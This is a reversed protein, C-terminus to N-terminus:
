QASAAIARGNTKTVPVNVRESQKKHKAALVDIAFFISSLERLESYRERMRVFERLVDAVFVARLSAADKVEDHIRYGGGSKARDISLSVYQPTLPERIIVLKILERAQQLRHEAAAKSDNWEFRRHLESQPHSKAWRVVEQPRLLKRSGQVQKLEARLTENRTM